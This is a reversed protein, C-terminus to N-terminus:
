FRPEHRVRGPGVKIQIHASSTDVDKSILLKPKAHGSKGNSTGFEKTPHKLMKQNRWSQNFDTPWSPAQPTQKEEKKEDPWTLPVSKESPTHPRTHLLKWRLSVAAIHTGWSAKWSARGHEEPTQGSCNLTSITITNSSLNNQRQGLGAEPDTWAMQALFYEFSM